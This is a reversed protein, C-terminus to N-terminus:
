VESLPESARSINLGTAGPLRFLRVLPPLNSLLLFLWPYSHCCFVLATKPRVPMTCKRSIDRSVWSSSSPLVFRLSEADYGRLSWRENVEGGLRWNKVNQGAVLQKKSMKWVSSGSDKGRQFLGHRRRFRGPLGCDNCLFGSPKTDRRLRKSHPQIFKSLIQIHNYTPILAEQVRACQSTVISVCWSHDTTPVDM